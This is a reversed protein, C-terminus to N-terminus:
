VTGLIIHHIATASKLAKQHGQLNKSTNPKILKKIYLKDTQIEELRQVEHYQQAKLLSKIPHPTHPYFRKKFFKQSWVVLLIKYM